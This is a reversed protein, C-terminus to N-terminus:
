MASFRGVENDAMTLDVLVRICDRFKATSPDYLKNTPDMFFALNKLWPAMYLICLTRDQIAERNMGSSVETVFDLTLHPAFNALGESLQILFPEPLGNVLSATLRTLLQAIRESHTVTSKSAVLPKGEFDLYTCVAQLLENAAIRVDEERSNVGLMGVHLLTAVVNSFRSRRETGPLQIARMTSKASRIAQPYGTLCSVIAYARRRVKVISDRALSSFYMTTGHRTKRIIFEHTEHGTSVNYVDNIDTLSIIDTARCSM